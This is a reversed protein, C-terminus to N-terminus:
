ASTQSPQRCIEPTKAGNSKQAEPVSIVSLDIEGKMAALKLVRALEWTLTKYPDPEGPWTKNADLAAKELKLAENWGHDLEEASHTAALREVEGAVDWMEMLNSEREVVWRPDAYIYKELISEVAAQHMDRHTEQLLTLVLFSLPKWTESSDGFRVGGPSHEDFSSVRIARFPHSISRQAMMEIAPNDDVILRYGFLGPDKVLSRGEDVLSPVATYYDAIEQSTRGSYVAQLEDLHGSGRDTWLNVAYDDATIIADFLTAMKPFDEFFNRVREKRGGTWVVLRKDKSFLKMLETVLATNILHNQPKGIYHALVGDFDIVVTDRKASREREAAVFGHNFARVRLFKPDDYARPAVPLVFAKSDVAAKLPLAIADIFDAARKFNSFRPNAILERMHSRNFAFALIVESQFHTNHDIIRHQLLNYDITLPAPDNDATALLLRVVQIRFSTNTIKAVSREIARCLVFYQWTGAIKSLAIAQDQLSAPKYLPELQDWSKGGNGRDFSKGQEVLSKRQDDEGLFVLDKTKVGNWPEHNPRPGHIVMRIRKNQLDSSVLIKKIKERLPPSLTRLIRDRQPSHALLKAYELMGYLVLPQAAIAGVDYLMPQDNTSLVSDYFDAFLAFIRENFFGSQIEKKLLDEVPKIPKGFYATQRGRFRKNQIDKHEIERQLIASFMDEFSEEKAIGERIGKLIIQTLTSYVLGNDIWSIRRAAPGETSTDLFEGELADAHKALVTTEEASLFAYRSIRHVALPEGPCELSYLIGLYEADTGLFVAPSGYPAHHDHFTKIWEWAETYDYPNEFYPDGVTKAIASDTLAYDRVQAARMQIFQLFEQDSHVPRVSYDPLEDLIRKRHQQPSLTLRETARSRRFIRNRLQWLIDGVYTWVWNKHKAVKLALAASTVSLPVSIMRLTRARIKPLVTSSFSTPTIAKRTFSELSITRIPRDVFSQHRSFAVVLSPDVFLGPVVFFVVIRLLFKPM